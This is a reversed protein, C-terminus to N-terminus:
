GYISERSASALASALPDRNMYKEVKKPDLELGLGPGTPVDLYGDKLKLRESLLTEHIMIETFEIVPHITKTSGGLHLKAAIQSGVGWETGIVTALGASEAVAAWKKVGYFGGAKAIKANIVDAAGKKIIRMVDFLSFASEDAEIPIDVTKTIRAMGDLDWKKTPQELLELDVDFKQTLKCMKIAEKPTYAQNADARISIKDGMADRMAKLSLADRLPDSGVKAKFGRVGQEYYELSHEAMKEPVGRPVETSLLIKDQHCGGLLNCVSTNMAKGLLDHLALDIGSTALVNHWGGTRTVIHLIQERDFPDMGIIRPGMYNDIIIKVSEWPEGFFGVDPAAAGIGTIDEDTHIKVIINDLLLADNPATRRSGSLTKGTYYKDPANVGRVKCMGDKFFGVPISVPITEVKTIEL